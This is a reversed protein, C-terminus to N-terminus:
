GYFLSGPKRHVSYVDMSTAFINVHMMLGSRVLMETHKQEPGAKVTHSMV